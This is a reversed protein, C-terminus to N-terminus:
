AYISIVKGRSVRQEYGNILAELKKCSIPQAHQRIQRWKVERQQLSLLRGCKERALIMSMGEQAKVDLFPQIQDIAKWPDEILCEHTLFLIRRRLTLPLARYRARSLAMLHDISGIVRDLPSMRAYKQEWGIAFWPLLIKGAKFYPNFLLPDSTERQGMKRKWWSYVLDVPHRQLSLVRMSPFADFAIDMNAMLEHSIFVSYRPSVKFDKVVAQGDPAFCRKLYEDVNFNKYLSSSDNFRFNLNRGIRLSYASEDLALRMLAMGAPRQFFGLRILPPIQEILPVYQFHECHDFGDCIKGLLFKGARTFGELLLIKKVMLARPVCQVNMDKAM